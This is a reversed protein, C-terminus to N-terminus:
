LQKKSSSDAYFASKDDFKKEDQFGEKQSSSQLQLLVLHMFAADAM